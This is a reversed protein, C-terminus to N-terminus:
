SQITKECTAFDTFLRADIGARLASDICVQSDDFYLVESPKVGALIKNVENFFGNDKKMLGIECSIFKGDFYNKGGLEEWLYQTKYKEQDSALYVKLGLAKAKEIFEIVESAFHTDAKHWYDVLEQASKPWKWDSLIKELEVRLDAKGVKTLTFPGNIFEMIKSKEVGFENSYIDSFYKGQYLVGDWDLLLVKYKM